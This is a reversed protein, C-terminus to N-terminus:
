PTTTVPSTHPLADRSHIRERSFRSLSKLFYLPVIQDMWEEECKWNKKVNGIEIERERERRKKKKSERM